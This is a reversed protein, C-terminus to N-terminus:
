IYKLQEVITVLYIHNHKIFKDHLKQKQETHMWSTQVSTDM